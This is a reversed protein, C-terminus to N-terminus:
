KRIGEMFLQLEVVDSKPGLNRPKGFDSRKITTTAKFGVRHGGWPDQGEGLRDVQLTVPKSVDRLTLVGKLIGKDANGIYATSKFTAKPYKAVNLFEEGRLHKDREAWNTDVSDMQITFQVSSASPNNEDWNFSGDFTNFRGVITGFGIHSTYFQIFTHSPDLKYDAAVATQFVLGSLSLVGAALYRKMLSRRSMIKEGRHM